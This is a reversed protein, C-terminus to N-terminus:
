NQKQDDLRREIRALSQRAMSMQEELRVMREAVPLVTSASVELAQLRVEAAGGWMLAGASQLALTAIVGFSVTRELKFGSM